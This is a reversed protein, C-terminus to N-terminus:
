LKLDRFKLQAVYILVSSYNTQGELILNNQFASRM